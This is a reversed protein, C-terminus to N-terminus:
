RVNNWSIHGLVCLVSLISSGQCLTSTASCCLVPLFCLLLLARQWGLPELQVLELYESPFLREPLMLAPCSGWLLSLSVSEEGKAAPQILSKICPTGKSFIVCAILFFAGKM